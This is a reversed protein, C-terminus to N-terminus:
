MLCMTSVIHRYPDSVSTTIFTEIENIPFNDQEFLQGMVHFVLAFFM